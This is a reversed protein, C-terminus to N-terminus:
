IGTIKRIWVRYRCVDLFFVSGTCITKPSGKVVGYLVDVGGEKVFMGGGSNGQTLKTQSSSLLFFVSLLIFLSLKLVDDIKETDSFFTGKLDGATTNSAIFRGAFRVTTDISPSKCNNHNPLKIKPPTSYSQKLKLLMIDHLQKNNDEYIYPKDEIDAAVQQTAQPHRHLLAVLNPKNCHAATLVWSDGILSGGCHFKDSPKNNNDKVTLAVHHTGEHDKCPEGNIIRKQLEGLSADLLPSFSSTVILH